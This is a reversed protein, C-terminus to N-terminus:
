TDAEKISGMRSSFFLFILHGKTSPHWVKQMSSIFCLSKFYM